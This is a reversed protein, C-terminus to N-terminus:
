LLHSDEGGQNDNRTEALRLSRKKGWVQFLVWACSVPSGLLCCGTVWLIGTWWSEATAIIIGCLCLTSGYYDVCTAALWTNSWELSDTQLPFLPFNYLTWSITSLTVGFLILYFFAILSMASIGNWELASTTKNAKPAPPNISTTIGFGRPHTSHVPTV